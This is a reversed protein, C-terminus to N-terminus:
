NRCRQGPYLTCGKLSEHIAGPTSSNQVSPLAPGLVAPEQPVTIHYKGHCCADTAKVLADQVDAPSMAALSAALKAAEMNDPVSISYKVIVGSTVAAVSILSVDTGGLQRSGNM